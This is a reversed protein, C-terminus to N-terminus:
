DFDKHEPPIPPIPVSQGALAHTCDACFHLIGDTVIYHCCKEVREPGWTWTHKFSPSYTPKDLNGDFSWGRDKPLVHVDECGPCWHYHGTKCIGLVESIAPM